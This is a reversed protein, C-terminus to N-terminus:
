MGNLLLFVIYNTVDYAAYDYLVVVRAICKWHCDFTTGERM